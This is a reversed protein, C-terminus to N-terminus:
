REFGFLDCGCRYLEEVEFKGLKPTRDEHRENFYLEGAWDRFARKMRMYKEPDPEGPERQVLASGAMSKIDELVKDAGKSRLFRTFELESMQLYKAADSAINASTEKAM